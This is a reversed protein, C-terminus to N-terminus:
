IRAQLYTSRRQKWTEWRCWQVPSTRPSSVSAEEPESSLTQSAGPEPGLSVRAQEPLEHEEADAVPGVDPRTGSSSFRCGRVGLRSQQQVRSDLCFTHVNCLAARLPAHFSSHCSICILLYLFGIPSVAVIEPHSKKLPPPNLLNISPLHRAITSAM